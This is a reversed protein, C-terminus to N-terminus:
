RQPFRVYTNPLKIKPSSSGCRISLRHIGTSPRNGRRYASRLRDAYWWWSGGKLIRWKYTIQRARRLTIQKRVWRRRWVRRRKGSRYTKWVRVRRRVWKWIKSKRLVCRKGKGQCPGRPNVRKCEPSKKRSCGAYADPDYFDNVWEYGNGAMDFIGLRNPVTLGVRWIEDRRIRVYKKNKYRPPPCFKMVSQPRPFSKNPPYMRYNAVRCSPPQNGWPYTTGQPGRAAAEWEAESLLRKGAWKCYDRAMWWTSSVFAQEPGCFRKWGRRKCNLASPKCFGAKLCARYQAQTVEFKDIYFTNLIVYHRPSEARMRWWWHQANRFSGRVYIGGPVCVMGQPLPKACAKFKMSKAQKVLWAPPGLTSKPHSPPMKALAVMPRSLILLCCLIWLRIM